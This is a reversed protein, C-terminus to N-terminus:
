HQMEKKNNIKWAMFICLMVFLVSFINVYRSINEGVRVSTPDFIFEIIHKGAPISLGRLAYDTKCYATKKGDIYAEWGLPYYV